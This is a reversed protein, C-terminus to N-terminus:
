SADMRVNKLHSLQGRCQPYTNLIWQGIINMVDKERRAFFHDADKIIAGTTTDSPFWKEIMDELTSTSTFNDRSGLILLRPLDKRQTARQLHDQAAFCLLWHQVGYPPAILICGMCHAPSLSACASSAILSGYSYGILLVHQPATTPRQSSSEVTSNTTTSTYDGRILAHVVDEVQQVQAYGRGIQSGTFNFRLTTIGLAQFFLVAAVVVNNHLNGGLPGWPHTVVVALSSGLDALLAESGDTLTLRREVRSPM